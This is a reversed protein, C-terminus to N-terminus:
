RTQNAVQLLVDVHCALGPRCWCALNKGALERQLESKTVRISKGRVVAIRRNNPVQIAIKPIM